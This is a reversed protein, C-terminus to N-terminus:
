AVNLSTVLQQAQSSTGSFTLPSCFSYSSPSTNLCGQLRSGGLASGEGPAQLISPGSFLTVQFSWVGFLGWAGLETSIFCFFFFSCCVGSWAFTRSVPFTWSPSPSRLCFCSASVLLCPPHGAFGFGARLLCACSSRLTVPKPLRNAHQQAFPKIVARHDPPGYGAYTPV